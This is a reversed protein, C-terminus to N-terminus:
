DTANKLLRKRSKFTAFEISIYEDNKQCQIQVAIKDLRQRYLEAKISLKAIYTDEGLLISKQFM